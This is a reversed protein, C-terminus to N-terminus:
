KVAVRAASPSFHLSSTRAKKSARGHHHRRTPNTPGGSSSQIKNASNSPTQPAVRRPADVVERYLTKREIASDDWSKGFQQKRNVRLDASEGRPKARQDKQAAGKKDTESSAALVEAETRWFWERLDAREKCRVICRLLLRLLYITIILASLIIACLIGAKMTTIVDRVM